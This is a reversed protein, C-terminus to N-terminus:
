LKFTPIPEMKHKNQRNFKMYQRIASKQQETIPKGIWQTCENPNKAFKTIETDM